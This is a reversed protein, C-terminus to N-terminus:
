KKVESIEEIKKLNRKTQVRSLERSLVNRLYLLSELNMFFSVEDETDKISVIVHDGRVLCLVLVDDSVHYGKVQRNEFKM